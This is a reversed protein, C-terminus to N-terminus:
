WKIFGHGGLSLVFNCLFIVCLLVIVLVAWKRVEAPVYNNVAWWAFSLVIIAVVLVILGQMLGGSSVTVDALIPLLNM